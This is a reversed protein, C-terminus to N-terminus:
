FCWVMSYQELIRFAVNIHANIEIVGINIQIIKKPVIKQWTLHHTWQMRIFSQNSKIFFRFSGWTKNLKVPFTWDYICNSCLKSAVSFVTQTVKWLWGTPILPRLLITATVGSFNRGILSNSFRWFDIAIMSPRNETWPHVLKPRSLNCWSHNIISLQYWCRAVFESEYDISVWELCEFDKIILFFCQFQFFLSVVSKFSLFVFNSLFKIRLSQLHVWVWSGNPCISSNTPVRHFFM